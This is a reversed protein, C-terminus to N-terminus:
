NAAPEPAPPGLLEDWKKLQDETLVARSQDDWEKRKQEVVDPPAGFMTRMGAQRDALIPKLKDRQEASLELAMAVDDREVAALGAERWLLQLLRSFQPEELTERVSKEQADRLTKMAASREGDSLSQLSQMAERAGSQLDTLKSKQEDTLKLESAVESRLAIGILGRGRQQGGGSGPGGMMGTPMTPSDGGIVERTPPEPPEPDTGGPTSFGAVLPDEGQSEVILEVRYDKFLSPWKLLIRHYVRRGHPIREETPSGAIIKRVESLKVGKDTEDNLVNRLGTLTPEYSYKQRAEFALLGLLIAIGGWVIVREVPSRVPKNSSTPNPSASSPASDSM